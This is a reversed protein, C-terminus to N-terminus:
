ARILLRLWKEEKVSRGYSLHNDATCIAQQLYMNQVTTEYEGPDTKVNTRANVEVGFHKRLMSESKGPVRSRDAGSRGGGDYESGPIEVMM